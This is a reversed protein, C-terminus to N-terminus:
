HTAAAARALVASVQEHAHERVTERVPVPASAPRLVRPSLLAALEAPLAALKLWNIQPPGRRKFVQVRLHWDAGPELVLRLPAASSQQRANLPRFIFVPASAGLAAVQLRRMQEPRAAPLWALIAAAADAKIAQETAWLSHRARDADPAPRIWVLQQPRIGHAQLGPLHPMLPPNILLLPGAAPAQLLGSLAPGLLRWELGGAQAQLIESLGQTPWGGGPLEADLLAFGSTVGARQGSDAGAGGRAARWVHADLDIAPAPAALM